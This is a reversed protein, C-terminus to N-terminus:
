GGMDRRWRIDGDRFLRGICHAAYRGSADRCGCEVTHLVAVVGDGPQRGTHEPELWADALLVVSDTDTIRRVAGSFDTFYLEGDADEGFSSINHGVPNLQSTVETLDSLTAGDYQFYWMRGFFDAFFYRGTHFPM